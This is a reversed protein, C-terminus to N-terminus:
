FGEDDYPTEEEEEIFDAEVTDEPLLPAQRYRSALAQAGGRYLGERREQEARMAVQLTSPRERKKMARAMLWAITLTPILQTGPILGEFVTVMQLAQLGLMELIFWSIPAAFIDFAFDLLDLALPVTVPVARLTEFFDADEPVETEMIQKAAIVLLTIAGVLAVAACVGFAVLGRTLAESVTLQEIGTM